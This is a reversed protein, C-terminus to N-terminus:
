EHFYGLTVRELGALDFQTEIKQYGQYAFYERIIAAQECGHEVALLGGANLRSYSQKIIIKLDSFGQQAAILATHPEFRVDGQQLHPDTLKIYPPNSVIVDFKGVIADCWHSVIYSINNFQYRRANEMAVQIAAQQRDVAIIWADSREEAIALAIAGSGTGLDLISPNKIAKIKELALEVLLETEPRPILTSENVKLTLNWFDRKQLLYAMPYGAQRQTIWQELNKRQDLSLANEPYALLYSREVGLTHCLLLEVDLRASDSNPLLNQSNKLYDAIVKM